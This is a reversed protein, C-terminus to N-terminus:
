NSLSPQCHSRFVCCKDIRGYLTDNERFINLPFIVYLDHQTGPSSTEQKPKGVATILPTKSVSEQQRGPNDADSHM